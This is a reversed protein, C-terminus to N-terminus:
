QLAVRILKRTSAFVGIFLRKEKRNQPLFTDCLTQYLHVLLIDLNYLFLIISIVFSIYHLDLILNSIIYCSIINM